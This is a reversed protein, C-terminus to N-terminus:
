KIERVERRRGGKWWVSSIFFEYRRLFEFRLLNAKARIEYNLYMTWEHVQISKNTFKRDRLSFSFFFFPFFIFTYLQFLLSFQGSSVQIARFEYNTVTGHFRKREGGGTYIVNLYYLASLSLAPLALPIPSLELRPWNGRFNADALKTEGRHRVPYTTIYRSSELM